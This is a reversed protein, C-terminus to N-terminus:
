VRPLDRGKPAAPGAPRPLTEPGPSPGSAAVPLDRQRATAAEIRDAADLCTERAAKEQQIVDRSLERLEHALRHVQPAAQHEVIEALAEGIAAQLRSRERRKVFYNMAAPGVSCAVMLGIFTLARQNTILITCLWALACLWILAVAIGYRRQIRATGGSIARRFAKTLPEIARPDHLKGLERAAAIQVDLNPDRLAQTLANIAATGRGEALEKVARLRRRPDAHRIWRPEAQAGDLEEELFTSM